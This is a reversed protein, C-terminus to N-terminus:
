QKYENRLIEQKKKRELKEQMINIKELTITAYDFKPIVIEEYLTPDGYHLVRAVKTSSSGWASIQLPIANHKSKSPSKYSNWNNAFEGIDLYIRGGKWKSHGKRGKFQM